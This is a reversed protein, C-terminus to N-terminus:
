LEKFQLVTDDEGTFGMILLSFGDRNMVFMPNTKGSEDVYNSSVYYQCSKEHSNLLNKVANLVHFHKKGFKQAVLLSTTVPTGKESKYVLDNM